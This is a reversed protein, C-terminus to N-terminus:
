TELSTMRGDEDVEGRRCRWGVGRRRTKMTMKPGDDEEGMKERGGKWDNGEVKGTVMMREVGDGRRTYGGRQDNDEDERGITDMDLRGGKRDDERVGM